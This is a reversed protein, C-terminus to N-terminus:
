TRAESVIGFERMLIEYFQKESELPTEARQRDASVMRSVFGLSKLLEHFLGNLEYCFGGRRNVVIKEYFKEVDVKIPRKWHIDLNEFPVSLLHQRQLLRLSGENVPLNNSEIGIRRLYAEINL